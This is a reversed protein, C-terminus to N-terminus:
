QWVLAKVYSDRNVGGINAVEPLANSATLIEEFGVAGVACHHLYEL